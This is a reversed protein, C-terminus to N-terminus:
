QAYVILMPVIEIVLYLFGTVLLMIGIAIRTDSPRPKRKVKVLPM